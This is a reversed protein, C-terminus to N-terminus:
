ERADVLARRLEEREAAARDAATTAREADGRARAAAGEAATAQWAWHGDAHHVRCPPRNLAALRRKVPPHKPAASKPKTPM